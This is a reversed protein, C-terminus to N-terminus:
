QHYIGQTIKQSKGGQEQTYLHNKKLHDHKTLGSLEPASPTGKHTSGFKLSKTIIIVCSTINYTRHLSKSTDRRSM